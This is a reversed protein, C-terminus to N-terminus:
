HTFKQPFAFLENFCTKNTLNLGGKKGRDKPCILHTKSGSIVQPTRRIPSSFITFQTLARAGRNAAAYKCAVELFGKKKKLFTTMMRCQDFYMLLHKLCIQNCDRIKSNDSAHEDVANSKKQQLFSTLRGKGEIKLDCNKKKLFFCCISALFFEPFHVCYLM